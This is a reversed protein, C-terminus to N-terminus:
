YNHVKRWADFSSDKQKLLAFLVAPVHKGNVGAACTCKCNQIQNGNIISLTITYSSKKMQARCLGKVYIINDSEGTM